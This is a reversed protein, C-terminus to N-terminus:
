FSSGICDQSQKPQLFAAMGFTFFSIWDQLSSSGEKLWDHVSFSNEPQKGTPFCDWISLLIQLNKTFSIVTVEYILAFLLNGKATCVGSTNHTCYTCPDTFAVQEVARSLTRYKNKLM